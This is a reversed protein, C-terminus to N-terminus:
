FEKRIKDSLETSSTVHIQEIVKLVIGLKEAQAKKQELYADKIATTLLYHPQINKLLNIYFERAEDNFVAFEPEIKFIYDVSQVESLMFAREQWTHIPRGEGKARRINFDNELGIILIDCQNKSERLFHVHGPHLIDFSGTILGVTKNDQRAERALQIIEELSKLKKNM